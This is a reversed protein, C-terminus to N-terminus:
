APTPLPRRRVAAYTLATAAVLLLGFAANGANIGGYGFLPYLAGSSVGAFAGSGIKALDGVGQVAVRQHLPFQEVILSSAAVVGFCWGLGIQFNGAFVGVVGAAPTVAAWVAGWTCLRGAVYLMPFRGVKDCLRGVLPSFLYMGWIHVAMMLGVIDANGGEKMHLPTLAMVGVM